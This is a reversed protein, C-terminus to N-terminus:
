ISRPNKEKFDFRGSSGCDRCIFRSYIKTKTTRTGHRNLKDSGCNPCVIGEEIFLNHNPINSAFPRLKKYLKELLRVDQKCYREMKRQAKECRNHVDVWLQWGGNQMKTDDVAWKGLYGLKNNFSLMNSKALRCTDIHHIKPLPDLGHLIFRTQIYKWDFKIGNHTVVADADKVIDHFAKLVEFDDNVDKKWKGPFDWANICETKSGNM